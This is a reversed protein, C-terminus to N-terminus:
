LEYRITATSSVTFGQAGAVQRHDATAVIGRAAGARIGMAFGFPGALPIDLEPGLTLAGFIAGSSNLPSRPDAPIASAWSWGVDAAAAGWWTARGSRAFRLRGGLTVSVVGVTIRGLLDDKSGGAANVGAFV